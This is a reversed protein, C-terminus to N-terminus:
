LMSIVLLKMSQKGAILTQFPQRPDQKLEDALSLAHVVQPLQRYTPM